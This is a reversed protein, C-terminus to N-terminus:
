ESSQISAPDDAGSPGSAPAPGRLLGLLLVLLLVANVVLLAIVTNRLTLIQRHAARLARAHSPNAEDLTDDRPGLAAHPSPDAAPALPAPASQRPTPVTRRTASKALAAFATPPPEGSTPEAATVASRAVVTAPAQGPLLRVEGLGLRQRDDPSPFVAGCQDCSYASPEVPEKCAHCRGLLHAIGPTEGALMWFQRGTPGRLVTEPTVRGRAIMKKITAYSCGPMFPMEPDRIFWPGMQNQSAQRSLPEFLGGCAGCEAVGVAQPEGCYPCPFWPEASGDTQPTNHTPQDNM